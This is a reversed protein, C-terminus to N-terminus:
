AGASWACLFPPLWSCGVGAPSPVLDLGFVMLSRDIDDGALNLDDALRVRETLGFQYQQFGAGLDHELHRGKM